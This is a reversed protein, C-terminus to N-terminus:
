GITLCQERSALMRAAQHRACPWPVPAVIHLVWAPTGEVTEPGVPAFYSKLKRPANPAPTKNNPWSSVACPTAGGLVLPTSTGFVELWGVDGVAFRGRRRLGFVEGSWEIPLFSPRHTCLAPVYDVRASSEPKSPIGRQLGVIAII